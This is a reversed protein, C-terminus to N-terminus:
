LVAHQGLFSPLQKSKHMFTAHSEFLDLFSIVIHEEKYLSCSLVFCWCRVSMFLTQVYREKLPQCASKKVQGWLESHLGENPLKSVVVFVDTQGSNICYYLFAIGIWQFCICPICKRRYYYTIVPLPLLADTQFDVLTHHCPLGQLYRRFGLSVLGQSSWIYSEDSQQHVHWWLGTSRESSFFTSPLCNNLPTKVLSTVDRWIQSLKFCFSPHNLGIISSPELLFATWLFLCTVLLANRVLPSLWMIILFAVGM